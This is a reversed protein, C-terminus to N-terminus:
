KLRRLQIMKEFTMGSFDDIIYDAYSEIAERPNTTALGFVFAGSDIGAKLGHFSDEFVFASEPTSHLMNMSKVYCEPNPKSHAFSEETLILDVQNKFEPHTKYVNAMKELNSSTVVAIKVGHSRLDCMFSQVGPIYEYSMEKEFLTLEEAIEVQVEKQSSFYKDFIKILTQGKIIPGFNERALYKKGLRNWLITYQSETDMIVGDFDFLAAISVTPDM